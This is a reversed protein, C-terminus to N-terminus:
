AFMKAFKNKEKQKEQEYKQKCKAMEQNLIKLNAEDPDQGVGKKLVELAERFYAKSNKPDLSLTLDCQKICESFNKFKLCCQALNSHVPVVCTKEIERRDEETLDPRQRAFEVYRLAKKYKDSAKFLDQSKFLTNGINGM